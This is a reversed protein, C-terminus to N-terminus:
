LSFDAPGDIERYSFCAIDPLGHDWPYYIGPKGTLKLAESIYQHNEM